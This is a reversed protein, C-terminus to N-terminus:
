SDDNHNNEIKWKRNRVFLKGRLHLYFAKTMKTDEMELVTSLM